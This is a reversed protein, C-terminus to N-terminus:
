RVDTARPGGGAPADSRELVALRDLLDGFLARGAAAAETLTLLGGRLGQATLYREAAARAAFLNIHPCACTAARDGGASAVLVTAEPPASGVTGADADVIVTVPRESGPERAEVVARGGVLHAIGLADIACNAWYARGDGTRVRHRTPRACFPYAVAVEGAPGLQALDREVLRRLADEASAARALDAARPPRGYLFRRLIFAYLGLAEAGLGALREPAWRNDGIAGALKGAWSESV